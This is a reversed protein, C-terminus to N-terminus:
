APQGEYEVHPEQPIIGSQWSHVLMAFIMFLESGWSGEHCRAPHWTPFPM